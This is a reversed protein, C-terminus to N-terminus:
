KKMHVDRQPFPIEIKNKNLTNYILTNAQDAASWKNIYNNVWFYAKFNLSSDAMELFRVMPKKEKMLDDIKKIEKIILEKVQKIDSGYAVGFPVVVRASLDPLVYNKIQSESLKGNPIIILENDFTRIKTSRLGVDEIEGMIGNELEIVDHVKATKDMVMSIGGFINGLSTQLAFAVALGAIGLSAILPGIQINWSQLLFLIALVYIIIKAFKDTMRVLQTNMASKSKKFLTKSWGNILISIIKVTMATVLLIILTNIGKQSYELYSNTLIIGVSIKLGILLLIWSINKDVVAFIKDDIDTKTKEFLKKVYAELIHIIIRTGLYFTILIALAYAYKNQTILSILQEM